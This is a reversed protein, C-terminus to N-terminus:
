KLYNDPWYEELGLEKVRVPRCDEFEIVVYLNTNCTMCTACCCEDFKELLVRHNSNAWVSHRPDERGWWAMKEGLLYERDHFRGTVDGGYDSCFHTQCKILGQLKCKPCVRNIVIWNYAGM